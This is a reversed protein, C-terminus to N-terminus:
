LQQIMANLTDLITTLVNHFLIFNSLHRGALFNAVPYCQEHVALQRRTRWDACALLFKVLFIRLIIKVVFLILSCIHLHLIAISPCNVRASLM